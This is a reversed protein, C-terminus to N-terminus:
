RSAELADTRQTRTQWEKKAAPTSASNENAAPPAPDNAAPPAPDNATGHMHRQLAKDTASKDVGFLRGTGYLVPKLVHEGNWADWASFTEPAVARGGLLVGNSFLTGFSKGVAFKVLFGTFKQRTNLSGPKAMVAQTGFNIPISFVNWAVAQPLHRMEHEIIDAEKAKVEATDAALGHRAGWHLADRHAGIRYIGKALPETVQRIGQMVGPCWRQLLVTPVIAGVDGVTEGLAWHKLNHTFKGWRMEQRVVRWVRRWASKEAMDEAM